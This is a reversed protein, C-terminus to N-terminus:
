PAPRNSADITRAVASHISRSQPPREERGLRHVRAPAIGEPGPRRTARAFLGCAAPLLVLQIVVLALVLQNAVAAAPLAVVRHDPGLQPAATLALVFVSAGVSVMSALLANAILPRRWVYAILGVLIAMVVALGHPANAVPAVEDLRGPRSLEYGPVFGLVALALALGGSMLCFGRLMVRRAAERDPVTRTM